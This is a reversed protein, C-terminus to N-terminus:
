EELTLNHVLITDIIYMCVPEYLIAHTEINRCKNFDSNFNNNYYTHLMFLDDHHPLHFQFTVTIYVPTTINDLM